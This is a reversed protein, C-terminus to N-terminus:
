ECVLPMAGSKGAEREPWSSGSGTQCEVPPMRGSGASAPPQSALTLLGHSLDSHSLTCYEDSYCSSPGRDWPFPFLLAVSSGEPPLWGRSGMALQPGGGLYQWGYASRLEDGPGPLIESQSCPCDGDGLEAESCCKGTPLLTWSTVSSMAKPQSDLVSVPLESELPRKGEAPVAAMTVSGGSEVWDKFNGNHETYLPQFFAAPNPVHIVVQNIKGVFRSPIKFYLIISILAALSLPIFLVLMLHSWDGRTPSGAGTDTETSWECETSWTSWQGRYPDVKNPKCRVSAVYVTNLQLEFGEITMHHTTVEKFKKELLKDKPWYCLEFLLQKNLIMGNYPDTRWQLQSSKNYAASLSGPALPRIHHAPRYNDVSCSTVNRGRYRRLHLQYEQFSRMRPLVLRCSFAPIEVERRLECSRHVKKKVMELTFNGDQSGPEPRWVCDAASLYDVVCSLNGLWGSCTNARATTVSLLLPLLLHGVM